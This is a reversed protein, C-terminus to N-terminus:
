GALVDFGAFILSNLVIHGLGVPILLRHWAVRAFALPIVFLENPMPVLSAYLFIAAMFAIPREVSWRHLTEVFRPAKRGSANRGLLGLLYGVSDGVSMGLSFVIIVWFPDFGISQLAPTFGAVPVPVLVNFGSIAAAVFLGPYGLEHLRAGFEPHAAVYRNAAVILAIVFALVLVRFAWKVVRRRLTLAPTPSEALTSM